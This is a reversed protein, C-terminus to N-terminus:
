SALWNLWWGVIALIGLMEAIALVLLCGIGKPKPRDDLVAQEEDLEGEDEYVAKSFDVAPNRRTNGYGNAHNRVAPEPEELLEHIEDLWKQDSGYLAEDIVSEDLYEGKEGAAETEQALAEAEEEEQLAENLRELERKPDDFM